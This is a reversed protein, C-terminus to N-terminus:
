PSLEAAAGKSGSETALYGDTGVDDVEGAQVAPQDDLKVAALVEFVGFVEPAVSPESALAVSDEPESVVVDESVRFAHEGDDEGSQWLRFRSRDSVGAIDAQKGPVTPGQPPDGGGQSPTTPALPLSPPPASSRLCTSRARSAMAAGCM